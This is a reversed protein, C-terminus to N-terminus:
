RGPSLPELRFGVHPFGKLRAVLANAGFRATRIVSAPRHGPGYPVYVIPSREVIEWGASRIMRRLAAINPTWWWNRTADLGAQPRRRSRLTAVLDLADFVLAEGACVERARELALVPDRLHLLISGVFVFDFTGFTEPSLDYVPATRREVRSRLVESAFAFADEAELIGTDNEIVEPQQLRTRAPWDVAAIDPADLTVVEAAGRREMEFAWFGNGTGVDLCRKGTLDPFPLRAPAHRIDVFGATVVGEGLDITHYWRLADARERLGGAAM